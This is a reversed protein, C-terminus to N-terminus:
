ILNVHICKLYINMLGFSLQRLQDLSGDVSLLDDNGSAVLGNDTQLHQRFGSAMITRRSTNGSARLWLFIPLAFPSIKDM